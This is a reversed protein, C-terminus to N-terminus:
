RVGRVRGLLSAVVATLAGFHKGAFRIRARTLSRVRDPRSITSGTAMKHSVVTGTSLVYQGSHSLRAGFDVDEMYLFYSDEFGGLKLFEHRNVFLCGGSAWQWKATGVGLLNELWNGRGTITLRPFLIEALIRRRTYGPQQAPVRGVGPVEQDPAVAIVGPEGLLSLARECTEENILVDPNVFVVYQTSALTALANAAKAFGLNVPSCVTEAGALRAANVSEDDSANDWVVVKDVRSVLAANVAEPIQDVSNHSILVATLGPQESDKKMRALTQDDPGRCFNSYHRIKASPKPYDLDWWYCHNWEAPLTAVSGPRHVAGWFQFYDQDAVMHDGAVHSDGNQQWWGLAFDCLERLASAKALVVGSNWYRFTEEDPPQATPDIVPLATHTFHDLFDTRSMSSGRITTQEVLAFDSGALANIVDATDLRNVVLCDADILLCVRPKKTAIAVQATQFIAMFPSPREGPRVPTIAEVQVREPHSIRFDAPSDTGVFVKFPTNELLSRVCMEAARFYDGTGFASVIVLPEAQETFQRSVEPM